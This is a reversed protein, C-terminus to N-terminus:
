KILRTHHYTRGHRGDSDNMVVHGYSNPITYPVKHAIDAWSIRRAATPNKDVFSYLSPDQVGANKLAEARAIVSQPQPRAGYVPYNPSVPTVSYGRAIYREVAGTDATQVSEYRIRPIKHGRIMETSVPSVVLYRQTYLNQRLQLTVSETDVRPINRIAKVVSGTDVQPINKVAKVIADTDTKDINQIAQLIKNLVDTDVKTDTKTQTEPTKPTEKPPPTVKKQIRITLPKKGVNRVSDTVEAILDHNGVAFDSKSFKPGNHLLTNGKYWKIFRSLDRDRWDKAIANFQITDGETFDTKTPSVITIVPKINSPAAMKINVILGNARSVSLGYGIGKDYVSEGGAIVKINFVKSTPEPKLIVPFTGSGYVSLFRVIQKGGTMTFIVSVRTAGLSYPITVKLTVDPM